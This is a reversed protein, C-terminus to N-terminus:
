LKSLVAEIDSLGIPKTLHYDFGSEAARRRDEEHGYGTLAILAPHLTHDRRLEEAVRYGSIDPLGIDLIVADPHKERACVLSTKGDYALDVQHGRLALLQAIGQAALENDDVVLISLPRQAGSPASANKKENYTTPAPKDATRGALAYSRRRALVGLAAASLARGMEVPQPKLPLRVVFTSGKNLGASSVSITGSHMEVLQKTLSLGIGVGSDAQPSRHIQVFPEFIRDTMEPPLGIGSDAVSLAVFSGERRCSVTITGHEPTYKAANTLLNTLIQELRIPDAFVPCVETASVSLAHGRMAILPEVSRVASALAERADVYGLQLALKKQSIRSIDLLDDLLRTMTHIREEVAAAVSRVVANTEEQIGLVEVSTRIAALPNRLEHALVAIFENKRRDESRIQELLVELQGVQRGLAQAAEKREEESSVFILFIATIVLFFLEVDIIGVSLLSASVAREVTGTLGIGVTLALALTMIRPGLRISIWMLPLLILYVLPVHDYASYPTWFLLSNVVSVVAIALSSEVVEPFTREHPQRFWRIVLPTLVAISLMDALWRPWFLASLSLSTGSLLIFSANILPGISGVVVVAVLLLLTDRMRAFMPDFGGLRFLYVGIVPQLTSGATFGLALPFPTGQLFHFALTGLAIAPWLGYGYLIVGAFAIGVAPWIIAPMTGFGQYLVAGLEAAGLYLVFFVILPIARARLDFVFARIAEMITINHYKQLTEGVMSAEFSYLDFSYLNSLRFVLLVFRVIPAPKKSM